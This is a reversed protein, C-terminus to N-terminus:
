MEKEILVQQGIINEIIHNPSLIFAPAEPCKRDQLFGYVFKDICSEGIVLIKM